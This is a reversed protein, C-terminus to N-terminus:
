RLVRVCVFVASKKVKQVKRQDYFESLTKQVRMCKTADDNWYANGGDNM